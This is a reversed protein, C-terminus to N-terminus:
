PDMRVGKGAEIIFGLYKTEKVAFECKRLDLGLSADRLRSLVKEVEKM